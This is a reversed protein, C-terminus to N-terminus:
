RGIAAYDHFVQKSQRCLRNILRRWFSPGSPTTPIVSNALRTEEAIKLIQQHRERYYQWDYNSFM